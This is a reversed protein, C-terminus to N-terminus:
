MTDHGLFGGTDFGGTYHQQVVSIISFTLAKRKQVISIQLDVGGV